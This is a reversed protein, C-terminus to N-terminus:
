NIVSGDVMSVWQSGDYFAPGETNADGSVSPDHYSTWGQSPSSINRVDSPNHEVVGQLQVSDLSVDGGFSGGGSVSIAEKDVAFARVNNNIDDLRLGFEESMSLKHLRNGNGQQDDVLQNLNEGRGGLITPQRFTDFNSGLRFASTDTDAAGPDEVTWGHIVSGFMDDSDMVFGTAGSSGPTIFITADIIDNTRVTGRFRIAFDSVDFNAPGIQTDAFSEDGDFPVYDVGRDATYAGQIQNRESWHGDASAEISIATADGASNTVDVSNPNIKNNGTDQLRLWGTADAPHTWKGGDLRLVDGNANDGTPIITIPWGTGPYDIKVNEDIDLHVTEVVDPDIELDADWSWATGDDKPTVRVRGQGGLNNQLYTLANDIKSALGAGSFQSAYVENNIREAHVAETPTNATGVDSPTIEVGDVVEDPDNVREWGGDQRAYLGAADSGNGTAKALDSDTDVTSLEDVTPVIIVREADVTHVTLTSPM